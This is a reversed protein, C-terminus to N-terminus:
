VLNKYKLEEEAVRRDEENFIGLSDTLFDWYTYRFEDQIRRATEDDIYRCKSADFPSLRWLERPYHLKLFCANAQYWESTYEEVWRKSWFEHSTDSVTARHGYTLESVCEGPGFLRTASVFVQEQDAGYGRWPIIGLGYKSYVDRLMKIVGRGLCILPNHSYWKRRCDFVFTKFRRNWNVQGFHHASENVAAWPRDEVDFGYDFRRYDGIEAPRFRMVYVHSDVTCVYDDDINEYAWSRGWGLGDVFVVDDVLVVVWPRLLDPRDFHVVVRGFRKLSEVTLRLATDTEREYVSVFFTTV